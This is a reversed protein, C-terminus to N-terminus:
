IAPDGSGILGAGPLLAIEGSEGGAGPVLHNADEFFGARARLEIAGFWFITVGTAM